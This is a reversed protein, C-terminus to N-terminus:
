VKKAAHSRLYRVIHYRRKKRYHKSLEPVKEASLAALAIKPIDILSEFIVFRKKWQPFFKRDFRLVSMAPLGFYSLVRGFYSGWFPLKENAEENYMQSLGCLHLTMLRYKNEKLYQATRAIMFEVLGNTAGIKTRTIDLSYGIHPYMPVMYLFGIPKSDADYAIALLCNEDESHLLRGLGMSFGTEPTGERWEASIEALEHKLHSPIGANYQFEMTIGMKTLKTVSHRLTKVRRGELSFDDLNVVAEEGICIAKLDLKNYIHVYEQRAGVHAIRLGRDFCYQQFEGMIVPLLEPPGVPDGSVVAVGGITRYALFIGNSHFFLNKDERVNFYALSDSGYQKVLALARSHEGETQFIRERQARLVLNALLFLGIVAFLGLMDPFLVAWGRFSLTRNGGIAMLASNQMLSRIDAPTGLSHRFLFLGATSLAFYTVIFAPMLIRFRRISATDPKVYFEKAIWLLAIALIFYMTALSVNKGLIMGLLSRGLFIGCLLLLAAMKRLWLHYALYFMFIGFLFLIAGAVRDTNLAMYNRLFFAHGQLRIGLSQLINFFGLLVVFYITIVAIARQAWNGAHLAAIDGALVEESKEPEAM